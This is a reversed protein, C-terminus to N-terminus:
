RYFQQLLRGLEEAWFLHALAAFSLFPGFPVAYKMDKGKILIIAIGVVAGALSSILIIAALPKWGFFAGFMAFLNVDGGGMGERGTLAEYYVAVFYLSGAGTMIGFFVDSLPVGKLFVALMAFVPIGTLTLSHPIIQHDLDIFSIVVLVSVFLFVAPFLLTLGYQRFTAYALIATLIEILPYRRSIAVGCDRCKGGLLLFSIVPINDYFRIPHGCRPCRSAPVVISVGEPIRSICVNLFSGVAAGALVVFVTIWLTWVNDVLM